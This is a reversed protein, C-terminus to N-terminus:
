KMIVRFGFAGNVNFGEQQQGHNRSINVNISELRCETAIVARLLECERGASEYLAKRAREQAQMAADGDSTLSPMFFSMNVQVRVDRGSSGRGDTQASATGALLALLGAVIWRTM